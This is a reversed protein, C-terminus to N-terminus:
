ELLGLLVWLLMEKTVSLSKAEIKVSVIIAKLLFVFWKVTNHKTNMRRHKITNQLWGRKIPM